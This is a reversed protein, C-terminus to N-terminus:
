QLKETIDIHAYPTNWRAFYNRDPLLELNADFINNFVVRFSNVPTITEYLKTNKDSPLYYANLISFREPLNTKEEDEWELMSGPGHDSQIIIVPEEKSNEIIEKTMALTKKAIFSLQEAYLKRYEEKNPHLEFYHSGDNGYMKGTMETPGGDSKFVFPPHPALIHTYTFTPKEIKAVDPMKEFVHLIKNRHQEFQLNKQLFISLPTLNLFLDGFEGFGIQDQMYIDTHQNDATGTWTYPFSVFSYGKEKLTQYVQNDKIIKRLPGRDQSEEGVTLAVDDLYKLNLASSVSLYTQPYNSTSQSAVFFGLNELSSVFVSDDAHYIEKLIDQRAFGDLIIYYIDPHKETSASQGINNSKEILETVNKTKIEYFTINFFSILVLIVSVANLYFTIKSFQKKTKIIQNATVTLFIIWGILIIYYNLNEIPMEQFLLFPLEVYHGFSLFTFLFISTLLAAKDRDKVFYKVLLHTFLAFFLVMITPWFAYSPNVLDKNYSYLSLVSFLAFLYPHLILVVKRKKKTTTNIKM